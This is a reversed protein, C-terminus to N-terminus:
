PYTRVPRFEIAEIGGSPNLALVRSSRVYAASDYVMAGRSLRHTMRSVHDALSVIDDQHGHRGPRSVPWRDNLWEAANGLMDFLGLDNPLLSGCARLLSGSNDKFHAYLPLLDTSDGYYRSTITGSRCAYEWEANTPLRYGRRQLLDAAVTMGPSYDRDKTPVYCWQDRPLGEQESLWNCDLLGFSLDNDRVGDELLGLARRALVRAKEHNSRDVTKSAAAFARAAAFRLDADVPEKRLADELSQLAADTGDGLESAVIVALAPASVSMAEQQFRALDALAPGKKGLRAQAIARLELADFDDKSRALVANLAVLAKDNEGLSLWAWARSSLASLDDPKTELAKEARKLAERMRDPVSRRKGAACVAVDVLVRHSFATQNEVYDWGFLDHYGTAGYHWGFVPNFAMDTVNPSPPKGWVGSYHVRGDSSRFAQLTRPILNADDFPKQAETLEDATAGLYLRADDGPALAWVAACREAPQIGALTVYGAVDVTLFKESRNKEDQRRVEDAAQGSVLRWNQGDRTWVAAVRTAMGDAFPRFRVPRYGSKRLAEATVLFEDLPMTQCFGFREALMGDASEIRSAIVADPKVWSPDLPPDSWSYTVAKAFEARLVPLVQEARKAAIPFLSAYAKPDSVMLLEALRDPDNSAYDALINTALAHESEPRKKDTFITALPALLKTRVPRLVDMWYGLFLANVSVLAQAVKDSETEWNADEPAYSALASAAPLVSGDGPKLSGLVTWLKPTLTARHAELADRLVPLEDTSAKLLRSYLYEVQSADVSLLALSAHLKQRSDDSCKELEFFLASDDWRRYDRMEAVIDPVQASEADLVREVLSAAHSARQNEVVQRRVAIGGLVGISILAVVLLACRM